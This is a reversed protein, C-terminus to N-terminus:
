AGAHKAANGKAAAPRACILEFQSGSQRHGQGTDVWELKGVYEQLILAM